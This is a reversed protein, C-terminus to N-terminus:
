TSWTEHYLGLGIKFVIDCYLWDIWKPPKYICGISRTTWMYSCWSCLWAMWWNDLMTWGVLCVMKQMGYLDLWKFIGSLECIFCISLLKLKHKIHKNICGDAHLQHKSQRLLHWNQRMNKGWSQLRPTANLSTKYIKTCLIRQVRTQRHRVGASHVLRHWLVNIFYTYALSCVTSPIDVSVQVLRWRYMYKFYIYMSVWECERGCGVDM